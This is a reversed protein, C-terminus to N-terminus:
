VSGRARALREAWVGSARVDDDLALQVGSADAVGYVQTAVDSTLLHDFSFSGEFAAWALRAGSAVAGSLTARVVSEADAPLEDYALDYERCPSWAPDPEDDQELPYVSVQDPQTLGEPVTVADADGVVFINFTSETGTWAVAEAFRAM